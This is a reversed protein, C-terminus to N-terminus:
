RWANHSQAAFFFCCIPALQLEAARKCETPVRSSASVLFLHGLVRDRTYLWCLCLQQPPSLAGLTARGQLHMSQLQSYWDPLTLHNYSPQCIFGRMLRECIFSAKAVIECLDKLLWSRKLKNDLTCPDVSFEFFSGCSICEREEWHFIDQDETAYSSSLPFMM